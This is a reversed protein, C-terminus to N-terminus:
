RPGRAARKRRPEGALLAAEARSHEAVLHRLRDRIVPDRFLADAFREALLEVERVATAGLTYRTREAVLEELLTPKPRKRPTKM